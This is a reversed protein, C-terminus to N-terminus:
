AVEPLDAPVSAPTRPTRVPQPLLPPASVSDDVHGTAGCDRCYFRGGSDAYGTERETGFDYTGYALNESLCQPCTNGAECNQGECPSTTMQWTEKIVRAACDHCANSEQPRFALYNSLGPGSIYGAFVALARQLHTATSWPISGPYLYFLGGRAHRPPRLAPM